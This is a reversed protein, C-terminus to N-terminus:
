VQSCHGVEASAQPVNDAPSVALSSEIVHCLDFAVESGNRANEYDAALALLSPLWLRMTNQSWLFGFQMTFVLACNRLHPSEFISSMQVLGDKIAASLSKPEDGPSTAVDDYSENALAKIPYEDINHNRRYIEQFVALAEANRGRSMLFKPSEPLFSFLIGGLLSPISMIM